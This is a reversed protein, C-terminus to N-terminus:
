VSPGGNGHTPAGQEGVASESRHALWRRLAAHVDAHNLLDFHGARPVHLVDARPFLEPGGRPRAIASAYPVLWDGVTGAAPHRPSASLTAGVLHYRAGPVQAADEPLGDHLDLVGRSRRGFVRSYPSLEPVRRSLRMGREITREVPSGLHPTGLTVIDTVLPRWDHDADAHVACAARVILGGMSHGVFAIRRVETPWAEVLRGLVSSLAAGSEAVPLGTNARVYVPSWGEEAALMDGYSPLGAVGPDEGRPRSARHWYEETECLGHVLILLADSAHPFCRAVDEPELPVDAGNDRVGLEIALGSGDTQLADGILGNLAAVVFRGRPSTDLERGLGRRDAERLGRATAKLGVGISGYVLGAVGDHMRHAPTTGGALRDVVGHVRGAVSTHVDRVSGLVLDELHDAAVAAAELVTPGPRRTM